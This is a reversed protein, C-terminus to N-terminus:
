RGLMTIKGDILRLRKNKEKCTLLARHHAYEQFLEAKLVLAEDHTVNGCVSPAVNLEPLSPYGLFDSVDGALRESELIVDWRTCIKGTSIEDHLTQMDGFEEVLLHKHEAHYFTSVEDGRVNVCRTVNGKLKSGRAAHKWHSMLREFPDRTVTMWAVPASARRVIASRNPWATNIHCDFVDFGKEKTQRVLKKMAIEPNHLGCDIFKKGPFVERLAANVSTSGTKARKDFVLSVLKRAEGFDRRVPSDARASQHHLSTNTNPPTAPATEIASRWLLLVVVLVAALAAIVRSNRLTRIRVARKWARVAAPWFRAMSTPTAAM